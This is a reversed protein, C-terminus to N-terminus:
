LLFPPPSHFPLPGKPMVQAPTPCITHATPPAKVRQHPSTILMSLPHPMVSESLMLAHSASDAIVTHRWVHTQGRTHREEKCPSTLDNKKVYCWAM